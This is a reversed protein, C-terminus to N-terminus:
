KRRKRPQPKWAPPPPPGASAAEPGQVAFQGSYGADPVGHVEEFLVQCIAMGKTLRIRYVGFNWIELRLASGPYTPDGERTGFGPHITPATIHIGLGLRALSSKGEVRAGIRSEYPLGITQETWGLVLRRPLLVYGAGECSDPQTYSRIIPDAKFGKTGPAFIPPEVGKIPAEAGEEKEEEGKWVNLEADLTLDLSHSAWRPDTPPPLDSVRVVGRAVATRIGRDSLIM